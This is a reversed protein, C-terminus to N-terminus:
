PSQTSSNSAADIPLLAAFTNPAGPCAEARNMPLSQMWVLVSPFLQPTRELFLSLHDDGPTEVYQARPSRNTMTRMSEPPILVDSSGSIVLMCASSAAVANGADISALDLGLKRDARLIADDVEKRTIWRQLWDYGFLHSSPARRITDAANAYPELAVVGRVDSVTNAGFLAVSGGYSSGLLYLPGPLANKRRLQAVMDSLDKAERPGYGVAAIDSEGQDRLDPMVVVYGASEFKVAWLAMSAGDTSWPHLLIVSGKPAVLSAARPPTVSVELNIAVNAHDNRHNESIHEIVDFARPLATWYVIRVGESTHITAKSFGFNELQERTGPIESTHGPEEIQKAIFVTCGTLGFVAFVSMWRVLRM